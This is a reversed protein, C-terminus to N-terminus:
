PAAAILRSDELVVNVLQQIASWYAIFDRIAMQLSMRMMENSMHGPPDILDALDLDEHLYEGNLWIAIIEEPSREVSEGPATEELFVGRPDHAKRRKIRTKLNRLADIVEASITNDRRKASAKLINMVRSASAKKTDTYLQRFDGIVAKVQEESPGEVGFQWAPGGLTEAGPIMVGKLTTESQAFASGKLEDVKRVFRRLAWLEEATFPDFAETVKNTPIAM